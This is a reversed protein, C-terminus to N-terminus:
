GLEPAEDLRLDGLLVGLLNRSLLVEQMPHATRDLALLEGDPPTMRFGSTLGAGSALRPAGMTSELEPCSIPPCGPNRGLEHLAFGREM